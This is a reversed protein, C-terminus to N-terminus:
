RSPLAATAASMTTPTWKFRGSRYTIAFTSHLHLFSVLLPQFASCSARARTQSAALCCLSNTSATYLIACTVHLLTAPPTKHQKHSHIRFFHLEAWSKVATLPEFFVCRSSVGPIRRPFSLINLFGCGINFDGLARPHVILGCVQFPVTTWRILLLNHLLM